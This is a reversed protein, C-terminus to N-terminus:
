AHGNEDPGDGHGPARAHAHCQGMVSTSGRPPPSSSGHKAGEDIAALQRKAMWSLVAVAVLTAVAGIILLVTQVTQTSRTSATVPANSSSVSHAITAGVYVYGITAPIMAVLALTYDRMTVATAAIVYNFVNYPILPSLRLLVMVKLGEAQLAADIASTLRFKQLQWAVVDRLLYRAVLFACVAGVSLGIWVVASGVVVGTGIGLSQSFAAGAGITLASAPILVVASAALVLTMTVAGAFTSEAIWLTLSSFALSLCACAESQTSNVGGTCGACPRVAQDIICATIISAIVLAAVLRAAHRRLCSAGGAAM